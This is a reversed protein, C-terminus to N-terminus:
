LFRDIGLDLEFLYVFSLINPVIFNPWLAKVWNGFNLLLLFHLVAVAVANVLLLYVIFINLICNEMLEIISIVINLSVM